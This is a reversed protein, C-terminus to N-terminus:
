DTGLLRVISVVNEVNGQGVNHGIKYSGPNLAIFALVNYKLNRKASEGQLAVFFYFLFSTCSMSGSESQFSKHTRSHHNFKSVGVVFIRLGRKIKGWNM